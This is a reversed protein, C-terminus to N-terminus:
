TLAPFHPVVEEALEQIVEEVPRHSFKNNLYVHNVGAEQLAHLFEMLFKHGSRFGLHIPTPGEDPNETLDIHLSQAFPKFGDTLSRYASILSAQQAPNRPYGFLGDSNEAIWELTQGSFGTVFVPIDGLVPKPLLDTGGTLSVRCTQITPFSKAWVEKMVYFAERYYEARKERDIHYADFEIPRDGTALGFLLREGSIKDLSAASQALNLPHQFSTIVSATGLAIKKTHAALHSLYIWPDYMQGVDGFSPDNLPIDRVMLSTFNAEEAIKALKIQQELNMEPVNGQYAELPVALGLTLKNEQFTRAYGNHKEFKNM